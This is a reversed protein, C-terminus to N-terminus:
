CRLFFFYPIRKIMAFLQNDRLFTSYIQYAWLTGRFSHDVLFFFGKQMKCFLFFFKPFNAPVKSAGRQLKQSFHLM